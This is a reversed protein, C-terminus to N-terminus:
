SIIKKKILRKSSSRKKSIELDTLEAAGNRHNNRNHGKSAKIASQALTISANQSFKKSPRKLRQCLTISMENAAFRIYSEGIQIIDGLYFLEREVPEHNIHTGNKSASDIIWFRGNSFEITCHQKSAGDDSLTIDCSEARGITIKSKSTQFLTHVGGEVLELVIEMEMKMKMDKKLEKDFSKM